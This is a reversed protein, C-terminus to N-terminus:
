SFDERPLNFRTFIEENSLKVEGLMLDFETSRGIGTVGSKISSFNEEIGVGIASVIGIGTVFIKM